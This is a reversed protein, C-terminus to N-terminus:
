KPITVFDGNKTTKMYRCIAVFNKIEQHFFGTKYITITFPAFDGNKTMKMYRCIAVFNEIEQRFFGTKYITIPFIAM